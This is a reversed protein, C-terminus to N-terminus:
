PKCPDGAVVGGGDPPLGGRARGGVAAVVFDVRRNQARGAETANDAVPRSEGFGVPLLRQCRVGRSVLARATALARQETMKQNFAANGRADSHAEIRLLTVDQRARLARVVVDLVPDSEPQLTAKGIEFVVPGPVALRDASYIPGTPGGVSPAPGAVMSLVPEAIVEDARELPEPMAGEDGVAAEPVDVAAASSPPDVAAAPVTVVASPAARPPDATAARAACASPLELSLGLVFLIAARNM